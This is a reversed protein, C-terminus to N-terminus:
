GHSRGGRGRVASAVEDVREDLHPAEVLLRQEVPQRRAAFQGRVEGLPEGRFHGTEM